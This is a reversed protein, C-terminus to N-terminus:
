KAVLLTTHNLFDGHCEVWVHLRELADQSALAGDDLVALVHLVEAVKSAGDFFYNVEIERIFCHREVLVVHDYEGLEIAARIVSCQVVYHWEQLM